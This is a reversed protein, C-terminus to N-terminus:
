KAEAIKKIEEMLNRKPFVHKLIAIIVDTRENFAFACHSRAPQGDVKYKRTYVGDGDCVFGLGSACM